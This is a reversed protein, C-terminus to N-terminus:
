TRRKVALYPPLFSLDLNGLEPLSDRGLEWGHDYPPVPPRADCSPPASHARSRSLCSFVPRSLHTFTLLVSSKPWRVLPSIISSVFFSASPLSYRKARNGTLEHEYFPRASSGLTVHEVHKAIYMPSYAVGNGARVLSALARFSVSQMNPRCM